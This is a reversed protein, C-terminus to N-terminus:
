RGGFSGVMPNVRPRSIIVQQGEDLGSTIETVQENSAGTTVYVKTPIAMKLIEVYRGQNDRKIARNPVVIVDQKEAVVINVSATMLPRIPLETAPLDIRVGYTVIGQASAGVPNIRSVVGEIEEGPFADLQIKARQGTQVQIIETEDIDVMIHYGTSDLLTAVPANLVVTDGAHINLTTLQGSFPAQLAADALRKQAIEVAVRAQAVQAEAVAIDEASPTSLLRALNSEAQAIQAEAATVQSAAVPEFLKQYNIEAIKVALEANAVQAEAQAGSGSSSLPSGKIADRSGQAGWLTNKAQDIALKALERDRSSPGKKLNELNAKASALAAEAAKIEEASPAKRARALSAESVQLQSQAQKLNLELDRTDLRAVVQGATVRDGEKLLVEAVTGTGPSVLNAVREGSVSGTASVISEISTREAPATNIGEAVPPEKPGRGQSYLYWSGAIVGAVLLVAMIRRM